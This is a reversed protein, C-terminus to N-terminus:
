TPSTSKFQYLITQVREQDPMLLPSEFTTQNIADPALQPEVCFGASPLFPDSLFNGTYFQFGISNSSITLEVNSKSSRVSLMKYTQTSHKSNSGTTNFHHDVGDAFAPHTQCTPNQPQYNFISNEVPVVTGIPINQRDVEAYDQAFLTFQHNNIHTNGDINLYVHNTLNIYTPTNTQCTYEVSLTNNEVHYRATVHVDGQLGVRSMPYALEYLISNKNLSVVRWTEKDFGVNGSHLCHEGHNIPLQLSRENIVLGGQNVRNAIPGVTAGMYYSDSLYDTQKDYGLALNQDHFKIATIRAGYDLLDVRLGQGDDISNKQM